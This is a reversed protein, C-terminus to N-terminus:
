AKSRIEIVSTPRPLKAEQINNQKVKEIWNIIDQTLYKLKFIGKSTYKLYEFHKKEQKPLKFIDYYDTIKKNDFYNIYEKINKAYGVVGEGTKYKRVINYIQNEKKYELWGGYRYFYNGLLETGYFINFTPIYIHEESINKIGALLHSFFDFIMKAFTSKHALWNIQMIGWGGLGRCIFNYESEQLAFARLYSIPPNFFGKGDRINLVSEFFNEAEEFLRYDRLALLHKVRTEFSYYKAM